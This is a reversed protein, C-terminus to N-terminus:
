RTCSCRQIWMHVYWIVNNMAVVSANIGVGSGEWFTARDFNRPVDVGEQLEFGPVGLAHGLGAVAIAVLAVLKFAGLTNQLRLGAKM